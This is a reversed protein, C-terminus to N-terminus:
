VIKEQFDYILHSFRKSIRFIELREEDKMDNLVHAGYSLKSSIRIISHFTQQYDDIADIINQVIEIEDTLEDRCCLPLNGIKM